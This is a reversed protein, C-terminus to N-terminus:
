KCYRSCKCAIEYASCGFGRAPYRCGTIRGSYSDYSCYCHYPGADARSPLALLGGLLGVMALAGRGLKGLFARRSALSAVREAVQSVKEFM